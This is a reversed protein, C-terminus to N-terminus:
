DNWSGATSPPVTPWSLPPRACCRGSPAADLRLGRVAPRTIGHVRSARRPIPCSPERLGSYEAVIELVHGTVADYRFLKIALEVIEDYRPSFGTTEVDLVAATGVLRTPRKM